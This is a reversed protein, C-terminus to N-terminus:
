RGFYQFICYSIANPLFYKWESDTNNDGSSKQRAESLSLRRNNTSGAEVPSLNLAVMGSPSALYRRVAPSENSSLAAAASNYAVVRMPHDFKCSPGFKCIGYRSYFVCLPEGQFWCILVVLHTVFPCNMWNCYITLCTKYWFLCSFCLDREEESWKNGKSRYDMGNKYRNYM